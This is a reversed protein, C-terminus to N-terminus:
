IDILCYIKDKINPTVLGIDGLSYTRVLPQSICYLPIPSTLGSPYLEEISGLCIMGVPETHCRTIGYNVPVGNHNQTKEYYLYDKYHNGSDGSQLGYADILLTSTVVSEPEQLDVKDEENMSLLYEHKILDNGMSRFSGLRYGKVVEVSVISWSECNIHELNPLIIIDKYKRDYIVFAEKNSSVGKVIQLVKFRKLEEVSMIVKGDEDLLYNGNNNTYAGEPAPSKLDAEKAEKVFRSVNVTNSERNFVEDVKRLELVEKSVYVMPLTFTIEACIKISKGGEKSVSLIRNNFSDVRADNVRSM